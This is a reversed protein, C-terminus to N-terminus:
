EESVDTVVDFDRRAAVSILRRAIEEPTPESWTEGALDGNSDVEAQTTKAEVAAVVENPVDGSISVPDTEVEGLTEGDKTIKLKM